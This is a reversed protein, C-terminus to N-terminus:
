VVGVIIACILLFAAGFAALQGHQALMFKATESM